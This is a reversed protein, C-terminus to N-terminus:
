YKKRLTLSRWFASVDTSCELVPEQAVSRSVAGKKMFFTVLLLLPRDKDLGNVIFIEGRNLEKL